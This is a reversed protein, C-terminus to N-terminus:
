KALQIRLVSAFFSFTIFTVSVIVIIDQTYLFGWFIVCTKKKKEAATSKSKAEAAAPKITEKEQVQGDTAIDTTGNHGIIEAKVQKQM